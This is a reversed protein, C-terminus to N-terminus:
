PFFVRRGSKPAVTQVHLWGKTCSPHEMWLGIAALSDQHELCWDDLVGEPDYIDAAEGTMHKSRPAANAVQGNIQPPRWGSNLMSKTRPNEELPMSEARLVAFLANVLAVTREANKMIEPTLEAPYLKERGMLYDDLSIKM